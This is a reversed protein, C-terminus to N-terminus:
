NMKSSVVVIERNGDCTIKLIGDSLTFIAVREKNSIDSIEPVISLKDKSVTIVNLCKEFSMKEQQIIKEEEALYHTPFLAAIIILAIKVSKLLRIKM